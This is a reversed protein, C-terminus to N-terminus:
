TAGGDPDPHVWGPRPPTKGGVECTGTVHERLLLGDDELNVTVNGGRDRTRVQADGEIRSGRHGVDFGLLEGIAGAQRTDLGVADARHAAIDRHGRHLGGVISEPVLSVQEDREIGLGDAGALQKTTRETLRYEADLHM